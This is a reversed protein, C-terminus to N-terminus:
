TDLLTFPNKCSYWSFRFPVILLNPDIIELGILRGDRDFDAHVGPKITITEASKTDSEAFFIYLLDRQPDYEIKMREIRLTQVYIVQVDQM